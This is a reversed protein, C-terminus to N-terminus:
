FYKVVTTTMPMKVIVSVWPFYLKVFTWKLLLFIGQGARGQGARGQGARGQGARSVPKGGSDLPLPLYSVKAVYKVPWMIRYAVYLYARM